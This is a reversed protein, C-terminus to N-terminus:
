WSSSATAPSGRRTRRPLPRSGASRPCSAPTTTSAATEWTCTAWRALRTGNPMRSRAGRERWPRSGPFRRRCGPQRRSASTTPCPAGRGARSGRGVPAALPGLLLPEGTEIITANLIAPPLKGERVADCWDSMRRGPAALQQDWSDELAWGRDLTWDLLTRLAGLLGQWLDPYALGWMTADLSDRGTKETVEDPGPRPSQLWSDLYFLAGVSGGSVSSVLRLGQAFRTDTRELETLVTATWLAARIGGGSAAVVVVPGDGGLAKDNAELAQAPSLPPSADQSVRYYHDSPCAVGSLTAALVLFLSTPVRYRDLFFSLGPLLWAAILLILLVYALAPLAGPPLALYPVLYFLLSAALFALTQSHGPYVVGGAGYGPRNGLDRLVWGLLARLPGSDSEAVRQEVRADDFVRDSGRPAAGALYARAVEALLLALMALGVGAVVGVPHWASLAETRAFATLVLPAVLYGAIVPRHRHLWAPAGPPLAPVGTREDAYDLINRLTLLAAWGLLVGAVTVLAMGGPRLDFVSGLLRPVGLVCLPGLGALALAMVLPFRCLFLYQLFVHRDKHLLGAAVFALAAAAVGAVVLAFKVKAAFANVAAWDDHPGYHIQYLLAGNEVADCVGALIQASGFASVGKAVLEWLRQGGAVARLLGAAAKCSLLITSCYAFIFLFDLWLSTEGASLLDNGEWIGLIRRVEDATSALELSIIDAGSGLARIPLDLRLLCTSLVLTLALTIPLRAHRIDDSTGGEFSM